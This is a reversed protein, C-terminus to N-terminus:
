AAPRGTRRRADRRDSDDAEHSERWSRTASASAILDDYLDFFAGTVIPWQYAAATTLAQARRREREPPNDWAALAADALGHSPSM